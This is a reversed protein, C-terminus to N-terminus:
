HFRDRWSSYISLFRITENGIALWEINLQEIGSAILFLKQFFLLVSEQMFSTRFYRIEKQVDLAM